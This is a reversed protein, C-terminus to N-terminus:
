FGSLETFDMIHKSLLSINACLQLRNQRLAEDEAMVFVQEFFADLEPKMEHLLAILTPVTAGGDEAVKGSARKYMAFLAAEVENEMLAEDIPGPVGRELLDAAKSKALRCPRGYAELASAFRESDACQSLEELRVCARYPNAGNEALVARVLDYREGSEILWVEQRRSVFAVLAAMDSEKVDIPQLSATQMFASRLDLELKSSVLIQILGMATRRLGFPDANAKPALGVGFLGVLSDVRDALAVLAGASTSPVADGAQRPLVSEFVAKACAESRGEKLAYHEGMQGALDTFEVVLQTALDAKCISAAERATELDTASYGLEKGLLPVLREVRRTKDLMSGLQEQFTISSLSPLFEDLTRECDNDYFFVADEFRARIVSENGGRVVSPNVKGNAVTLFVNKLTGSGNKELIPFYRQHKKMVTVLVERPLRLFSDDFSGVIVSPAEVLNTVEFLLSSEDEELWADPIVGDHLAAADKLAKRVFSMREVANGIIFQDKLLQLYASASDVEFREAPGGGPWRTNRLGFSQRGSTVDAFKFPVIQEGFVACLWRIPRSFQVGSFNWKMARTFSIKGLVSPLLTQLIEGTPLGDDKVQVYLYDDDRLVAQEIGVGNSRCFGLAAKTPNGEADYAAKKPPGRVDRTQDSQKEELAQVLAYVRRPTGSVEIDEFHLRSEELAVALNSKLEECAVAVDAAPLEEVGIELVFHRTRGEVAQKWQTPVSPSAATKLSDEYAKPANGLPFELETRRDVWLVAVERALARMQKFYRARETVGIAGRADLINFTHSTKLVYNYAPIPLRAEIMKKAEGAYADFLSRNTDIDAEDLNYKSMEIENEMFIEGYTIGPAYVIDKFHRKGQLAMIIRELGYTIEVPIASMSFGGAQQFYTFQTVEMGDMWVEWGLGWAGLAPSEWNDEVFRFDHASTDIGLARYSGLLLEQVNDPSPKLIVQFQTHRQVRNPNEGYRSDDPRVSPEDYAVFWPEPGLVRLYTAPNMTGAGVETNYPQWILCNQEAWYRQLRLIADQFTVVEDVTEVSPTAPAVSPASEAHEVSMMRLACGRMARVNARGADCCVRTPGVRSASAASSVFLPRMAAFCLLHQKHHEYRLAM